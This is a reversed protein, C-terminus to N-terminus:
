RDEGAPARHPVAQRRQGLQQIHFDHEYAGLAIADAPCARVPAAAALHGLVGRERVAQPAPLARHDQRRALIRDATSDPGPAQVSIAFKVPGTGSPPFTATTACITANVSSRRMSNSMFASFALRDAPHGPERPRPRAPHFGQRLVGAAATEGADGPFAFRHEAELSGDQFRRCVSPFFAAALSGPMLRAVSQRRM